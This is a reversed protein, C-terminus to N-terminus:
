PQEKRPEAAEFQQMDVGRPLMRVADARFRCVRQEGPELLLGHCIHKFVDLCVCTSTVRSGIRAAWTMGGWEDCEELPHALRSLYLFSAYKETGRAVNFDRTGDNHPM